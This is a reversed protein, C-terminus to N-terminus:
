EGVTWEQWLLDKEYPYRAVHIAKVRQYMLKRLADINDSGHLPSSSPKEEDDPTIRSMWTRQLRRWPSSTRASPRWITRTM